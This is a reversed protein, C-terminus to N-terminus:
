VLVVPEDSVLRLVMNVFVLMPVAYEHAVDPTVADMGLMPMVVLFLGAFLNVWMTKSKYWKKAM